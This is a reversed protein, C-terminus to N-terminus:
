VIKIEDIVTIAYPPVGELSYVAYPMRPDVYFKMTDNVKSIDIELLFYEDSIKTKSEKFDKALDELNEHSPKYVFFYVREPNDFNKWESKRPTLGVKSIKKYVTSSCIHYLKGLKRITETADADFKKNWWIEIWEDNPGFISHGGSFYGYKNLYKGFCYINYKNNPIVTYIQQQNNVAQLIMIVGNYESYGTVIDKLDNIDNSLHFLNTLCGVVRSIPYTKILGESIITPSAELRVRDFTLPGVLIKGGM